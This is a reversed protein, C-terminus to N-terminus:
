IRGTCFYQTIAACERLYNNVTLPSFDKASVGNVDYGLKKAIRSARFVHFRTTVFAVRPNSEAAAGSGSFLRNIIDFSFIFNEETSQSKGEEIISDAPVGAAVLWKKMVSAETSSEGEGMGGSVIILLDPNQEYCDLARDLRNRLVVSPLDGRIGAGLVILVDAKEPEATTKSNALILTTTAAFLLAFLVYASIMAYKLIKGVISVSWWSSLLPYFVGVIILPIGIVFPMVIGLNLNSISAAGIGEAVLLFGAISLIIRFIMKKLTNTGKVNEADCFFHLMLIGHLTNFHLQVCSLAESHENKTSLDARRTYFSMPVRSLKTKARVHQIHLGFRQKM